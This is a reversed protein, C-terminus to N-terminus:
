GNFLLFTCILHQIEGTSGNNVVLPFVLRILPVVKLVYDYSRKYDSWHWHVSFELRKMTSRLNRPLAAGSSM